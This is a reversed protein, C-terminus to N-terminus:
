AGLTPADLSFFFNLKESDPMVKERERKVNAKYPCLLFCAVKKFVLVLNFYRPKKLGKVM